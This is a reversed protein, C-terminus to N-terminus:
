TVYENKTRGPASLLNSSRLAAREESATIGRAALRVPDIWVRMSYNAAGLVQVEAVGEVTSIRPRIVREIYETLQESSMNPNQMALYMTAFQMGTGKVI